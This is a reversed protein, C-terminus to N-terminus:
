QHEVQRGGEKSQCCEASMLHSSKEWDADQEHSDDAREKSPNESTCSYCSDILRSPLTHEGQLRQHKSHSLRQTNKDNGEESHQRGQLVSVNACWAATVLLPLQETVQADYAFCPPRVEWVTGVTEKSVSCNYKKELRTILADRLMPSKMQFPVM